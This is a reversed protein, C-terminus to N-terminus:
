PSHLGCWPTADEGTINLLCCDFNGRIATSVNEWDCGTDQSELIGARKRNNLSNNVYNDEPNGVAKCTIDGKKAWVFARNQDWNSAFACGGTAITLPTPPLTETDPATRTISIPDVSFGKKIIDPNITNLIVWASIILVLGGIASWIRSKAKEVQSASERATIYTLGAFTLMLVALIGALGIMFKFAWSFYVNVGEGTPINTILEGGHMGPLPEILTYDTEQALVAATWFAAALIIILIITKSQNM